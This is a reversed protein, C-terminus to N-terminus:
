LKGEGRYICRALEIAVWCITVWSCLILTLTIAKISLSKKFMECGGSSFNKKDYYFGYCFLLFILIVGSVYVVM